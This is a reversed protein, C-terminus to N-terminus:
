AKRRGALAVIATVVALGTVIYAGIEASHGEGIFLMVTMVIAGIAALPAFIKGAIPYKRRAVSFLSVILTLVTFLACVALGLVPVLDNIVIEEGKFLEVIGMLIALAGKGDMINIYSFEVFYSVVMVAVTILSLILGIIAAANAKRKAKAPAEVAEPAPMAAPANGYALGAYYDRLEPPLDNANSPIIIYPQITTSGGAVVNIGTTKETPAVPPVYPADPWLSKGPGAGYFDAM